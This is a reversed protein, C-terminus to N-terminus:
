EHVRLLRNSTARQLYEPVSHEPFTLIAAEKRHIRRWIMNTDAWQELIQARHGIEYFHSLEYM